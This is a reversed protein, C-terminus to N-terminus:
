VKTLLALVSPFAQAMWWISINRLGWYATSAFGALVDCVVGDSHQQM